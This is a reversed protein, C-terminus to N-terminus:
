ICIHCLNPNYWLYNIDTQHYLGYSVRRNSNKKHKSIFVNTGYQFITIWMSRLSTKILYSSSTDTKFMIQGMLCRILVIREYIYTYWHKDGYKDNSHAAYSTTIYDCAFYICMIHILLNLDLELKDWGLWNLVLLYSCPFVLHLLDFLYM